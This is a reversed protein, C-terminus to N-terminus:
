NPKIYKLIFQLNPETTYRVLDTFKESEFYMEPLKDQNLYAEQEWPLQKYEELKSQKVLDNYYNLTYRQKQKWVFYPEETKSMVIALDGEIIQNVHTLEHAIYKLTFLDSANKAIVVDINSLNIKGYSVHGIENKKLAKFNITIKKIKTHQIGSSNLIFYQIFDEYLPKSYKLLSNVGKFKIEIKHSQYRM